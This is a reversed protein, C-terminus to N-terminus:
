AATQTPPAANGGAALWEVLRSRSLRIDRGVRWYVGPPVYGLRIARYMGHPRKYGALPAAEEVGIVDSNDTM